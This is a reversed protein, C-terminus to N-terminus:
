VLHRADESLFAVLSEAAAAYFGSRDAKVCDDRFDGVWTMLREDLFSQQRSISEGQAESRDALEAMISLLVALHDPPEPFGEPVRLDLDQLLEAARATPEQFLRGTDSVYASEYPPASRRGAVGLFLRSFAGALDMAKAALDESPAIQDRIQEVIPALAERRGLEDLLTRGEDSRYVSLMEVSPERAFLAAFWRYIFAREADSLQDAPEGPAHDEAAADGQSVAPM